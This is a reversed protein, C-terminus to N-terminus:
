SRHHEEFLGPVVDMAKLSAISHATAELGDASLGSKVFPASLPNVGVVVAENSEKVFEALRWDNSVKIGARYPHRPLTVNFVLVLLVLGDQIPNLFLCVFESKVEVVYRPVIDEVGVQIRLGQTSPEVLLRPTRADRPANELAYVSAVLTFVRM